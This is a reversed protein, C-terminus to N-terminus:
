EGPAPDYIVLQWATDPAATVSFTVPGGIRASAVYGGAVQTSDLCRSLLPTMPGGDGASAGPREMTVLVDSPGSCVLLM